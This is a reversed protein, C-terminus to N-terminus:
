AHVLANITGTTSPFSISHEDEGVTINKVANLGNEKDDDYEIKLEHYELEGNPDGNVLTILDGDDQILKITALGDAMKSANDSSEYTVQIDVISSLEDILRDREDYLDNALYGHVEVQKV